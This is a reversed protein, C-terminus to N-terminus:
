GIDYIIDVSVTLEQQGAQLPVSSASSGAAAAPMDYRVPGGADVQETISRVRGLTVGAATAIQAAQAKAQTVAEARAQARLASDDGVSFAIQQLRVANGALGAAADLLEGARAISRLTAQVVDDVQYGTITASKDDYTPNISLQSTQLDKAAVGNRRLLDILAASKSNNADLAAKANSDHTSVGIMVTLTDPRGSVKGVGRTAITRADTPISAPPVTTALTGGKLPAVADIGAAGMPTGSGAPAGIPNTGASTTNLSQPGAKGGGCATLLLGAVAVPAVIRAVTPM